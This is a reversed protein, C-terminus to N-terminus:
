LVHTTLLLSTLEDIKLKVNLAEVSWMEIVTLDRIYSAGFGLLKFIRM